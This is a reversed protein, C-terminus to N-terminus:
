EADLLSQIKSSYALCLVMIAEHKTSYVSFSTSIGPQKHDKVHKKIKKMLSADETLDEEPIGYFFHIDRSDALPFLMKIDQQDEDLSSIGFTAIRSINRPEIRNALIPETHNFYNVMAVVYSIFHAISHEYKEISVDGVLTEVVTKDVLYINAFLASRAYEQLINFAVKDDRKRTESSMTRDPCVYLVNLTTDKITELIKLIAGTTPDGGETILLVTDKKKIGKLYVEVERQDLSEEYEKMNDCSDLSFSARDDLGTDFQYIRYEPHETLQEAIACGLRGVGIIKDM